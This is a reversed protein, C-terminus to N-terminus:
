NKMKMLDKTYDTLTRTYFNKVMLGIFVGFWVLLLDSIFVVSSPTKLLQSIYNLM